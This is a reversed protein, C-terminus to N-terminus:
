PPMAVSLTTKLTADQVAHVKPQLASVNRVSLGQARKEYPQSSDLFKEQCLVKMPTEIAAHGNRCERHPDPTVAVFPEWSDKALSVGTPQLLRM